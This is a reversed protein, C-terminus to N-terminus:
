ATKDSLGAGIDVLCFHALDSNPVIVYGSIVSYRMSLRTNQFLTENRRAQRTTTEPRTLGPKSPFLAQNMGLSYVSNTTPFNVKNSYKIPGIVMMAFAETGPQMNMWRSVLPDAPAGGMTSVAPMSNKFAPAATIFQAGTSKVEFHTAYSPNYLKCTM